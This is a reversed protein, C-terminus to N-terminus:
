STRRCHPCLECVAMPGSSCPILIPRGGCLFRSTAITSPVGTVARAIAAQPLAVALVEALEVAVEGLTVCALEPELVRALDEKTAHRSCCPMVAGAPAPWAGLPPLPPPPLAAASWLRPPAEPCSVAKLSQRVLLEEPDPAVRAVPFAAARPAEALAAPLPDLAREPGAAPPDIPLTVLLDLVPSVSEVFPPWFTVTSNAPDVLYSSPVLLTEALATVLPEVTRTSPVVSLVVIVAVCTITSGALM